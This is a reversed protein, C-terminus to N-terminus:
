DGENNGEKALIAFNDGVCVFFGMDEGNAEQECASPKEMTEILTQVFDINKPQLKIPWQLPVHSTVECKEWDQDICPAYFCSLSRVLLMTPHTPSFGFISHLKQSSPIHDCLHLTSRNADNPM